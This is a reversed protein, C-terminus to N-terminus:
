QKTGSYEYVGTMGEEVVDIGDQRFTLSWKGPNSYGIQQYFIEFTDPAIWTGVAAFTGIETETFRYVGDLGIRYSVVDSEKATYSFEAYDTEPNFV